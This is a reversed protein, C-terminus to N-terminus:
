RGPGAFLADDMPVNLEIKETYTVFSQVPEKSTREEQLDFPFKVGDVERWGGLDVVINFTRDRARDTPHYITFVGTHRRDLYTKADLYVNRVIGSKTTVTLKYTEGGPLQEKGELTVSHGKAKWDVLLGDFDGDIDRAEGFAHAPRPVVKGQVMDWAIETNIARPVPPQGAPAQEARYLHPRKRYIVVKIDSFPTTITRTIKMTHITKLRAYGGRAEIHRAVIDDVTQASAATSALLLLAATGYANCGWTKV